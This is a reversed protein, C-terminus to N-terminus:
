NKIINKNIIQNNTEIRLIYSGAPLTTLPLAYVNKGPTAEKFLIGAANFLQLHNIISASQVTVNSTVPNPWVELKQLQRCLSKIVPSYMKSGDRDTEAIRYLGNELPSFDTFNYTRITTSNGAANVAGIVVWSNGSSREIEFKQSNAEQATQWTLMPNGNPCESKTSLYTVPLSISPSLKWLDNLYTNTGASAYGFGGFVWFNGTADTWSVSSNRGGPKNFASKTGQTGYVGAATNATSDGKLWVWQNNLSNYKWLDNLNSIGGSATFGIGEHLLFNGSTDVGAIAYFRAGPKNISAPIGTTGYVGHGDIVSDGKAWTWQRNTPDYKWLDNLRGSTSNTPFGNGGFLWMNGSKDKWSVSAFRAGPTNATGATGQIGYTGPSQLYNAGGIWTWLNNGVDYKWFDNLANLKANNGGPATGTGGFLYFNGDVGKWSVSNERGGPKNVPAATGKTGYIPQSNIFADGSVFTWENSFIDYEWLDNLFADTFDVVTYGGFLWLNGFIDTWTTAGKRAAPKYLPGPVGKPGYAGLNNTFNDGKMWTWLNTDPDYKWLDNLYGVGSGAAAYGLGGFLWMNGNRDTWTVANDRAGPMNAAAAIGQTGYVGTANATADGKMWTWQSNEDIQATVIFFTFLFITTFFTKM